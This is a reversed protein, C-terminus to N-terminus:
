PRRAVRLLFLSLAVFTVSGIVWQAAAPLDWLRGALVAPIAALPLLVGFAIVLQFTVLVGDLLAGLIEGVTM